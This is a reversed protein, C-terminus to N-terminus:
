TGSGLVGMMELTFEIQQLTLLGKVLIGLCFLLTASMPKQQGSNTCIANSHISQHEQCLFFNKHRETYKGKGKKSNEKWKLNIKIVKNKLEIFKKWDWFSLDFSAAANFQQQVTSVIM